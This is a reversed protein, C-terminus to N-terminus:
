RTEGPFDIGDDAQSWPVDARREDGDHGDDHDAPDAPDAPDTRDSVRGGAPRQWVLDVRKVSHAELELCLTLEGDDDTHRTDVSTVIAAELVASLEGPVPEWYSAFPVGPHVEQGLIIWGKGAIWRSDAPDPEGLTRTTVQYSGGAVLGSLDLEIRRRGSAMSSVVITNGGGLPATCALVGIEV